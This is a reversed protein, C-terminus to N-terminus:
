HPKGSITGEKSKRTLSDKSVREPDSVSRTRDRSKKRPSRAPSTPESIDVHLLKDQSKPRHPPSVSARTSQRHQPSSKESALPTNGSVELDDILAKIEPILDICNPRTEHAPNWLREIIQAVAQPVSPAISPRLNKKAVQIIVQFDMTIYSYEAFPRSWKGTAIANSIEWLVIGLSYMDSKTSYINGFYVEPASLFRFLACSLSSFSRGCCREGSLVYTYTYTGRLKALTTQQEPNLVFRSLGFDAVKLNMASDVLLNLSKLDRHVVPPKRSHLADVGMLAHLFFTLGQRWTLAVSSETEQDLLDRLTGKSCYETVLCMTPELVVGYFKLIHESDVSTLVSFEELMEQRMKSKTKMHLPRETMVKIAVTKSNYTGEYVCASTGDGLKRLFVLESPEIVCEQGIRENWSKKFDRM